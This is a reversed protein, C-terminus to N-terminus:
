QRNGSSYSNDGGGLKLLSDEHFKISLQFQKLNQFLHPTIIPTWYSPAGEMIENILEKDTYNYVFQLLELKHIVYESPIEQGNGLNRYSAHNTHVKQKDLFAQNMYYEGIATQLSNWDQEIRDCTEISQSYYWIEASSTLWMPVLMDLQKFVM